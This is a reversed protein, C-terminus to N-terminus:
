RNLNMESICRNVTKLEELLGEMLQQAAESEPNFAANFLNCAWLDLIACVMEKGEFEQELLRRRISRAQSSLGQLFIGLLINNRESGESDQPSFNLYQKLCHVGHGFGLFANSLERSMSRRETHNELYLKRWSKVIIKYKTLLFSPFKVFFYLFFIM